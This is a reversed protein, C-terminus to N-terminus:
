DDIFNFEDKFEERFIGFVAQLVDDDISTFTVPGEDSVELITVEEADEDNEIFVAYDTGRYRIIDLLNFEIEEGDENELVIINYKKDPMEVGGEETTEKTNDGNSDPRIARVFDYTTKNTGNVRELYGYISPFLTDAGDIRMVISGDSEASFKFIRNKRAQAVADATGGPFDKPTRSLEWVETKKNRRSYLSIIMGFTLSSVIQTTYTTYCFPMDTFAWELIFLGVLAFVAQGLLNFAFMSSLYQAFKSQRIERLLKFLAAFFLAIVGIFLIFGVWGFESLIVASTLNRFVYFIAAKAGSPLVAKGFIRANTILEDLCIRIYGSYDPDSKGRTLIVNISDEAIPSLYVAVAFTVLSLLLVTPFIIKKKGFERNHSIEAATLIYVFLIPMVPSIAGQFITTAVPIATAFIVHVARSANSTYLRTFSRVILPFCLPILATTYLAFDGIYLYRTSLDDDSLAASYAVIVGIYAFFSAYYLIKENALLPLIFAIVAALAMITTRLSDDGYMFEIATSVCLIAAYAIIAAFPLINKKLKDNM